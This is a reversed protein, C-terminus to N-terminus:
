SSAQNILVFPIVVAAAAGSLVLAVLAAHLLRGARRFGSTWAAVSLGGLVAVACVRLTHLGPLWAPATGHLLLLGLTAAPVLALSSAIRLRHDVPAPLAEYPVAGDLLDRLPSTM